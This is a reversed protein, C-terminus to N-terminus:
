PHDFNSDIQFRKFEISNFNRKKKLLNLRQRGGIHRPGMPLRGGGGRNPGSMHCPRAVGSADAPKPGSGYLATGAPRPRVGWGREREREREARAQRTAGGTSGDARGRHNSEGRVGGHNV